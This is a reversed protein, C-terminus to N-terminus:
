DSAKVTFTNKHFVRIDNLENTRVVVWKGKDQVDAGEIENVLRSGRYILAKM